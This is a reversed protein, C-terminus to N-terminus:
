QRNHLPKACLQKQPHPTYSEPTIKGKVLLQVQVNKITIRCALFVTVIHESWVYDGMEVIMRQGISWHEYVVVSPWLLPSNLCNWPRRHRWVHVRFCAHSKIPRFILWRKPSAHRPANCFKVIFV